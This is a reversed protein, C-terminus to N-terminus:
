LLCRFSNSLVCQMECKVLKEVPIVKDIHKDKFVTQIIAYNALYESEGTANMKVRAMPIDAYISDLIQLYAGGAGCQEVKTYNLQFFDKLWALLETPSASAM